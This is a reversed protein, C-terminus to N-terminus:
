EKRSFVVFFDDFYAARGYEIEANDPNNTKSYM